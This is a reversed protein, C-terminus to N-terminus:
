HSKLLDHLSEEQQKKLGRYYDVTDKWFKVDRPNTATKLKLQTEIVRGVSRHLGERIMRTLQEIFNASRTVLDCAKKPDNDRAELDRLFREYDQLESRTEDIEAQWRFLIAATKNPNALTSAESEQLNKLRQRLSEIIAKWRGRTREILPQCPNAAIVFSVEVRRNISRLAELGAGRGMEAVATQKEGHALVKLQESKAGASILYTAIFKAREQSLGLNYKDAGETSAHGGIEM